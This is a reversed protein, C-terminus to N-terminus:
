KIKGEVKLRVMRVIHEKLVQHSGCRVCMEATLNIAAEVNDKSTPWYDLQQLEYELGKLRKELFQDIKEQLVKQRIYENKVTM